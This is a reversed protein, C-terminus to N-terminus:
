READPHFNRREEAEARADELCEECLGFRTHERVGCGDCLLDKMSTPVFPDRNDNAPSPKLIVPALSFRIIFM